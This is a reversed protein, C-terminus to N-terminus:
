EGQESIIETLEASFPLHYWRTDTEYAEPGWNTARIGDAALARVILEADDSDTPTRSFLDVTILHRVRRPKNGSFAAVRGLTLSFTLYQPATGTVPRQTVPIGTEALAANIREAVTM